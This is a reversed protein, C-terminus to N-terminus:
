ERCVTLPVRGYFGIDPAMVGLQAVWAGNERGVAFIASGSGATIQTAGGRLSAHRVGASVDSSVFRISSGTNASGASALLTDNLSFTSRGGFAVVIFSASFSSDSTASPLPDGCSLQDTSVTVSQVMFGSAVKPTASDSRQPTAGGRLHATRLRVERGTLSDATRPLVVRFSMSPPPPPPSPVGLTGDAGVSLRRVGGEASDYVVPPYGRAVYVHGAQAVFRTEVDPFHNAYVATSTNSLTHSSVWISHTGPRLQIRAAGDWSRGYGLPRGAPRGDIVDLNAGGQFALVAVSDPPLPGGVFTQVQTTACACVAVVGLLTASHM